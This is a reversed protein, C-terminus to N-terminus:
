PRQPATLADAAKPWWEGNEYLWPSPARPPVYERLASMGRRTVEAEIADLLEHLQPLRPKRCSGRARRPTGVAAVGFPNTEPNRVAFSKGSLTAGGPRPSVNFSLCDTSAALARAPEQRRDARRPADPEIPIRMPPPLELADILNGAAVLAFHHEIQASWIESGRLQAASSAKSHPARLCDAGMARATPSDRGDM